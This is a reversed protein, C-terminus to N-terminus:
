RVKGCWVRDDADRTSAAGAPYPWFSVAYRFSAAALKCDRITRLRM